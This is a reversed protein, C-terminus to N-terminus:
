IRKIQVCLRSLLNKFIKTSNGRNKYVRLLFIQCLCIQDLLCDIVSWVFEYLDMITWLLGYLNMCTWLLGYCDM